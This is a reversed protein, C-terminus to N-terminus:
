KEMWEVKANKIMFPKFSNLPESKSIKVLKYKFVVKSSSIKDHIGIKNNRVIISFSFIWQIIFSISGVSTFVGIRIKEFNLYEVNKQEIALKNILTHNIFIILFFLNIIWIGSFALERKIMTLFKKRPNEFIIKLRFIFMGLSQGNFLIPIIIFILLLLLIALFAWVYFTWPEVFKLYGNERQLFFHAILITISAFVVVDFLKSVLRIWFGAIKNEKM